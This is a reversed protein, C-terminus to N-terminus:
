SNHRDDGPERRSNRTSPQSSLRLQSGNIHRFGLCEAHLYLRAITADDETGTGTGTGTGTIADACERRGYLRDGLIPNDLGLPHAAHVRLQHTRGSLPIFSVARPGNWLSDASPSTTAPEPWRRSWLTTAAKGHTKCVIQRPRNDVDLRLPLHIAGDRGAPEHELVARYRKVVKRREFQQQLHRHAAKHRALVMLGSTDMDLRHVLVPGSVGDIGDLVRAHVSDRLTRGPQSLLGAPKDVVLYDDDEYVIWLAAGAHWYGHASEISHTSSAVDGLSNLSPGNGFRRTPAVEGAM